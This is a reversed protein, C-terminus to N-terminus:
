NRMKASCKTKKRVDFIIKQKELCAFLNTDLNWKFIFPFCMIPIFYRAVLSIKQVKLGYFICFMKPHFKKLTYWELCFHNTKSLNFFNILFIGM